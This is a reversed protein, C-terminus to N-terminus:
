SFDDFDDKLYMALRLRISDWLYRVVREPLGLVQATM